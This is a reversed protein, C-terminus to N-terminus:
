SELLQFGVRCPIEICFLVFQHVGIGYLIGGASALVGGIGWTLIIVREMNIGSVLALEMNGATARM